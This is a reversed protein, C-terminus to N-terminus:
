GSCTLPASSGWAELSLRHCCQPLPTWHSQRTCNLYSQFFCNLRDERSWYGQRILLKSNRLLFLFAPFPFCLRVRASVVGPPSQAVTAVERCLTRDPHRVHAGRIGPHRPASDRANGPEAGREHVAARVQLPSPQSRLQPSPHVGRHAQLPCPICGRARHSHRAGCDLRAAAESRPRTRCPLPCCFRMAPSVFSPIGARHRVQAGCSM